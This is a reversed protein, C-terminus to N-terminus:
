SQADRILLKRALKDVFRIPNGIYSPNGHDGVFPSVNDTSVLDDNPEVNSTNWAFLNRVVDIPSRTHAVFRNLFDDLAFSTFYRTGTTGM